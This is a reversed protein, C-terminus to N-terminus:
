ISNSPMMNVIGGVTSGIPLDGDPYGSHVAFAHRDECYVYRPREMHCYHDGRYPIVTVEREPYRAALAEAEECATALVGFGVYFTFEGHVTTRYYVGFMTTM